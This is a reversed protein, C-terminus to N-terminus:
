KYLQFSILSNANVSEEARQNGDEPERPGVLNVMISTHLPILPILLFLGGYESSPGTTKDRSLPCLVVGLLYSSWFIIPTFMKVYIPTANVANM